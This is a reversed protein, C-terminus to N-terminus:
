FNHKKLQLDLVINGFPIFAVIFASIAWKLSWRIKYTTYAIVIVYLTFLGGHIAGVVSVVQPMDLFYKLPMAIFVLFLLSGGELFGMTRFRGLPTHLM